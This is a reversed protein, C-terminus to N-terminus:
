DFLNLSTQVALTDNPLKGNMQVIHLNDLNEYKIAEIFKVVDNIYLDLNNRKPQLYFTSKFTKVDCCIPNFSFGGDICALPVVLNLNNCESLEFIVHNYKYQKRM